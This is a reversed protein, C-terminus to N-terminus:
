GKKRQAGIWRPTRVRYDRYRYGFAELCSREEDVALIGAAVTLIASLVLLIWSTSAIGMGFLMLAQALYMPHRSYRYPGETFPNGPRTSLIVRIVFIWITAGVLYPIIGSLLWPGHTELPVFVSIVLTPFFIMKWLFDRRAESEGMAPFIDKLAVRRIRGVIDPIFM